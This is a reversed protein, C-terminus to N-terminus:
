LTDSVTWTLNGTYQGAPSLGLQKLLLGTDSTWNKSISDTTITEYSNNNTAVVLPTSNIAAYDSQSSNKYVLAMKENLDSNSDYIGDTTVSLKWPERLSTVSLDFDSQRKIYTARNGFHVRQFELNDSVNISLAKNPKVTVNYTIPNSILGNTQDIATVTVVQTSDLPFIDWFDDGFGEITKIFDVSTSSTQGSELSIDPAVTYTHNGVEIKLITDSGTLGSPASDSYHLNLDSNWTTNENKYLLEYDTNSDTGLILSYDKKALVTFAPSSTMAISNTGTFSAPAQKVDIDSSTDNTATASISIKASSNTASLNKALTYQLNGDSLSDQNIKVPDSGDAYTITAVNGDADPTVTVNSPIQIKSAISKWDEDGRIYSLTYDLSLEDGNAVTKDTAGDSITKNLTKDTISASADSYPSEPISDFAVLKTSVESSSTNSGTFGWRIKGSSSNFKTTDIDNEVKKAKTNELGDKSIDNYIYTLKATTSGAPAPTWHITTHHWYIPNDNADTDNTLDVTTNTNSHVMVTATNFSAFTSAASLDNPNVQHYTGEYGPYTVAIHGLGGGSGYSLSGPIGISSSPKSGLPTDFGNQSYTPLLTGGLGISSLNIPAAGPKTNFFSNRSADFELAVSNQIATNKLYSTPKASITQFLGTTSNDFGYVGMGDLGAGLAGTGRSDNQLVFAIGEGNKEDSGEGSGFYTWFSITQSKNIDFTQDKSWLAGYSGKGTALYIINGTTSDTGDHNIIQASNTKYPFSSESSSPTSKTLYDGMSVGNPADKLVALDTDSTLAASVNNINKTIIIFISMFFILGWLSARNKNKM